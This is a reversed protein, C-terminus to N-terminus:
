YQMTATVAVRWQVGDPSCWMDHARGGDNGAVICLQNNLVLAQTQTRPTFAAAATAQNWTVGDTSCWVDNKMSNIDYGGIVWLKGNFVVAAHEARASFAAAATAM